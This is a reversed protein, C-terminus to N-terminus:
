RAFEGSLLEFDADDVLAVKGKTLAIEKMEAGGQSVAGRGTDGPQFASSPYVYVGRIVQGELVFYRKGADIAMENGLKLTEIVYENM